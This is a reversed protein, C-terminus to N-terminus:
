KHQTWNQLTQKRDAIYRKKNVRLYIQQQDSM